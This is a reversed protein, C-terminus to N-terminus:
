SWVTRAIRGNKDIYYKITPKKTYGLHVGTQKKPKDKRTYSKVNFSKGRSSRKGTKSPIREVM